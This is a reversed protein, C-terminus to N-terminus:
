GATVSIGVRYQPIKKANEPFLIKSYVHGSDNNLKGSLESSQYSKKTNTIVQFIFNYDV